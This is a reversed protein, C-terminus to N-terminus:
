FILNLACSRAKGNSWWLLHARSLSRKDWFMRTVFWAWSHQRLTSFFPMYMFLERVQRSWAQYLFNQAIFTHLKKNLRWSKPLPLHWFRRISLKHSCIIIIIISANLTSFFLPVPVCMKVTKLMLTRFTELYLLQFHVFFKLLLLNKFSSGKLVVAGWGGCYFFVCTDVRRHSVGADECVFFTPIDFEWIFVM